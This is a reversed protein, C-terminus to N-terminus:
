AQLPAALFSPRQEMARWHNALQPFQEDWREDPFRFQLYSLMVACAIDALTFVNGVAFARQTLQRNLYGAAATMKSKQRSVWAASRQAEPRLGEVRILVAADLIGDALAEVQRVADREAGLTPLLRNGLSQDDLYEAILPSDVMVTGDARLLVPVKGLPNMSPVRSETSLPSDIVYHLAIQKEAAVVRVKRTYPSSNTGILQM